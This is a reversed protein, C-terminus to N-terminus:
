NAPKSLIFGPQALHCSTCPPIFTSPSVFQANPDPKNTSPNIKLIQYSFWDSPTQATSSRELVAWGLFVQGAADGYVEKVAVSGVPYPVQAAALGAALTDNWYTQGYAALSTVLHVVSKKTWTRYGTNNTRDSQLRNLMGTPSTDTFYLSTAPVTGTSTGGSGLTSANIGLDASTLKTCTGPSPGGSPPDNNVFVSKYHIGASDMIAFHFTNQGTSSVSCNYLKLGGQQAADLAAQLGNVNPFQRLVEQETCCYSALPDGCAGDGGNLVAVWALGQANCGELGAGPNWGGTTGSPLGGDTAGSTDTGTGGITGDTTTGGTGGDTPPPCGTTTTTGVTPTTSTATSTGQPTGNQVWTTIESMENPALPASGAPPMPQTTSTLSTVINQADASAGAYTTYDPTAPTASTSSHCTNCKATFIPLIDDTWDPNAADLLHLGTAGGTGTSSILSTDTGLGGSTDTGLGGSTDTGLGGSTDTTSTTTCPAPTVVAPASADSGDTTGNTDSSTDTAAPASAGGSSSKKSCGQFLALGVCLAFSIRYKLSTYAM